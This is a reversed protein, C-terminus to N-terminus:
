KKAVLVMNTEEALQRAVEDAGEKFYPTKEDGMLLNISTTAVEKANPQEFLQAVAPVRVLASGNTSVSMPAWIVYLYDVGLARQFDAIKKRDGLEWDTDIYFYASKYPGKIAQPYSQISQSVQASSIVQYRSKKRLADGVLNALVVNQPERTGSIVAISKGKPKFGRENVDFSVQYHSCGSSTFVLLLSFVAYIAPSKFLNNLMTNGM